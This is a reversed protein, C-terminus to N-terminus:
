TPPWAFAAVIAATGLLGTLVGCNTARISRARLKYYEGITRDQRSIHLARALDRDPRGDRHGPPLDGLRPATRRRQRSWGSFVAGGVVVGDACTL